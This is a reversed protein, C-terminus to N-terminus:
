FNRLGGCAELAKSLTRFSELKGVTDLPTRFNGVDKSLKGSVLAGPDNSNGYSATGRHGFADSLEWFSEFTESPVLVGPDLNPNEFAVLPGSPTRINGLSGFANSCKRLKGM